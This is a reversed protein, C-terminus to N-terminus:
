EVTVAEAANGEETDAVEPYVFLRDGPHIARNPDLRNWILL